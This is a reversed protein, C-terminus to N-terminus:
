VLRNQAQNLGQICATRVDTLDNQEELLFRLLEHCEPESSGALIHLINDGQDNKALLDAGSRLLLQIVEGKGDEFQDAPICLVEHFVNSGCRGSLLSNLDVDSSAV